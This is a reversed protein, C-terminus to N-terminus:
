VIEAKLREAEAMLEKKSQAFLTTSLLMIFGLAYVKM